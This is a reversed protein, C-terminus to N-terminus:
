KVELDINYLFFGLKKGTYSIEWQIGNEDIEDKMIDVGTSGPLSVYLRRKEANYWGRVNFTVDRTVSSGTGVPPADPTFDKTDLIDNV